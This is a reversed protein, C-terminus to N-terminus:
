RSVAIVHEDQHVRVLYRIVASGAFSSFYSGCMRLGSRTYYKMICEFQIPYPLILKSILKIMRKM